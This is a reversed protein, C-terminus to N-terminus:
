PHYWGCVSVGWVSILGAPQLHPTNRERQSVWLNFVWYTPHNKSFTKRFSVLNVVHAVSVWTPMHLGVSESHGKQDTVRDVYLPAIFLCCAQGSGSFGLKDSCMTPSQTTPFITANQIFTPPPSRPRGAQRDTQRQIEEKVWRDNLWLKREGGTYRSLTICSFTEMNHLKTM